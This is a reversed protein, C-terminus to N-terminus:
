YLIILHFIATKGCSTPLNTPLNGYNHMKEFGKGVPM